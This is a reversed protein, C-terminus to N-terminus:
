ESEGSPWRASRAQTPVPMRMLVANQLDVVGGAGIQEVNVAHTVDDLRLDVGEGAGGVDIGVLQPNVVVLDVVDVVDGGDLEREM